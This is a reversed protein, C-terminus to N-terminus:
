NRILTWSSFDSRFEKGEGYADEGEFIFNVYLTAPLQNSPLTFMWQLVDTVPLPINIISSSSPSPPVIHYLGDAIVKPYRASISDPLRSDNIDLSMKRIVGEVSNDSTFDVKLISVSDLPSSAVWGLPDISTVRVEPAPTFVQTCSVLLTIVALFGLAFLLSRKM